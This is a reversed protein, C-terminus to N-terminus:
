VRVRFGLGLGYGQANGRGSTHKPGLSGIMPSPGCHIWLARVECLRDLIEECDKWFRQFEMMFRLVEWFRTLIRGSEKRFAGLITEYGKWFSWSVELDRWFGGLIRGSDRFFGVLIGGALLRWFQRWLTVTLHKAPIMKEKLMPFVRRGLDEWDLQM